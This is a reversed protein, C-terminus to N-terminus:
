VGKLTAVEAELTEIRGIAEQLAATLLPVLKSQDIGQYIPVTRTGLLPPKAPVIENGDEDLVPPTAPEIEYQEEREEDKIGTVAEPVFEQVEHAVFGDVTKGPEEIFNFRHVPIQKLRDCANALSVINEKLRYDSSTNYATASTTTTISGVTGSTRAFIFATRTGSNNDYIRAGQTPNHGSGDTDVSIYLGANQGYLSSGAKAWVGYGYGTSGGGGPRVGQVGATPGSSGYASVATSGYVGIAGSNGISDVAYGVIGIASHDVIATGVAEAYLGINRGSTNYGRGPNNVRTNIYYTDTYPVGSGATLSTGSGYGYFTILDTASSTGVLVKGGTYAVQGSGPVWPASIGAPGQPGTAGQPGAPGTAGTLGQPGAPGTAGQPGQPGTEGQPGVAGGAVLVRGNEDGLVPLTQGDATTVQLVFDSM